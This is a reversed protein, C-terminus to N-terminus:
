HSSNLRTSKRDEIPISLAIEASPTGGLTGTYQGLVTAKNYSFKYENVSVTPTYTMPSLPTLTPNWSLWSTEYVPHQVLVDPATGVSSWNFASTGSLTANIRGILSYADSSTASATNSIKAYKENTATHSFSDYVTGYPIRSMGLVVGDTANFGLYIFYDIGLTKLENSGANFWNSGANMVISLASTIAQVTGNLTVHVPDSVSPDGGSFTKIAVTLNNSTVSPLIRGNLLTGEPQSGGGAELTTLRTNILSMGTDIKYFNSTTATGGWVARFTSFLTSQDGTSDYLVLGLYPTTTSM